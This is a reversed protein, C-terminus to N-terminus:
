RDGLLARQLLTYHGPVSLYVRNFEQELGLESPRCFVPQCSTYLSVGGRLFLIDMYIYIIDMYVYYLIIYYLIIYYVIIYYIRFMM